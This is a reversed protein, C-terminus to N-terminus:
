MMNTDCICEKMFQINQWSGCVRLVMYLSSCSAIGCGLPTDCICEKVFRINKSAHRRPEIPMFNTSTYNRWSGYIGRRMGKVFRIDERFFIICVQLAIAAAYTHCSENMHGVHNMWIHSMVRGYTHCSEKILTVHSMSMHSMIWGLTHRSEKIPLVHITWIHSIVKHYLVHHNRWSSKMIIGEHHHNWWSEKMHLVHIKWIHSIVKHYLVYTIHSQSVFCTICVYKTIYFMFRGYTHYSKEMHTHCLTNMLTVPSMWVHPM